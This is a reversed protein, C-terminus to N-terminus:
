QDTIGKNKTNMNPDKHFDLIISSVKRAARVAFPSPKITTAAHGRVATRVLRQIGIIYTNMNVLGM